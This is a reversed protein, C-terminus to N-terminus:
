QFKEDDINSMELMIYIGLLKLEDKLNQIKQLIINFSETQHQRSECIQKEKTDVDFKIQEIMDELEEKIVQM